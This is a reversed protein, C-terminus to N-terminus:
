HEREWQPGHIYTHPIHTHAQTNEPQIIGYGQCWKHHTTCGEWKGEECLAVHLEGHGGEEGIANNILNQLREGSGLMNQHAWPCVCLDMTVLGKNFPSQLPRTGMKKCNLLDLGKLWASCRALFPFDSCCRSDRSTSSWSSTTGTIALWSGTSTSLSSSSSVQMTPASTTSGSLEPWLLDDSGTPTQRSLRIM